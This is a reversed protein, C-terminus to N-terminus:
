GHSHAWQSNSQAERVVKHILHKPDSKAPEHGLRLWIQSAALSRRGRLFLSQIVHHGVSMVFLM